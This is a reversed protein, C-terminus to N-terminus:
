TGAEMLAACDLCRRVLLQHALSVDVRFELQTSNLYSFDPQELPSQHNYGRALMEQALADHRANYSQPEMANGSLRGDIRHKKKWSPLFKHLEGHEGLLHKRCLLKPDVM